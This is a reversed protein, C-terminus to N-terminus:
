TAESSAARQDRQDRRDLYIATAAAHYDLHFQCRCRGPVIPRPCSLCLGRMPRIARALWEQPRHAAAYARHARACEECRVGDLPQLGARCQICKRAAILALRRAKRHDVPAAAPVPEVLDGVLERPRGDDGDIM